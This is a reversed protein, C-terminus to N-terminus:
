DYFICPELKVKFEPKYTGADIEDKAINIAQELSAGEVYFSYEKKKQKLIARCCYDPYPPYYIHKYSKLIWGKYKVIIQQAM